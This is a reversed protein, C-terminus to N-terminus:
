RSLLVAETTRYPPFFNTGHKAIIVGPFITGSADRMRLYYRRDPTGGRDHVHRINLQPLASVIKYMSQVNMLRLQFIKRPFNTLQIQGVSFYSVLEESSLFLIAIRFDAAYLLSIPLNITIKRQM